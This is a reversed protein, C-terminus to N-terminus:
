VEAGAVRSRDNGPVVGRRFVNFADTVLQPQVRRQVLLQGDPQPLHHAAVEARRNEGVQRDGLQDALAQLRRQREGDTGHQKGHQQCHRHTHHRRPLRTGPNVARDHNKGDQTEGQRNEPQPKKEDEAKRQLELDQRHLPVDAQALAQPGAQPMEHQGAEGEAHHVHRQNGAHGAGAHQFDQALIVNAGGVRLAQLRLGNQQPVGQLIGGQGNDRNDAHAHRQEDAADHNGFADEGNGPSPRSVTSAM